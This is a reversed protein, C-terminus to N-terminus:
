FMVLQWTANFTSFDSGRRTTAGTSYALKISQQGAIPISLTAGLRANRQLDPNLVGDVRTEGGAFWTANVALWSRRPLSYSAHGQLAVVADQRKVARAPFYSHNTSFLWVGASADLTWRSITHSLGIEPKVAWRNYGLNVLQRASYQGWPPVVTVAAGVATRRRAPAFQALTLAPAGVLGVSLKFRPDVFGALDQRQAQAHVHGAVSGWAIPAVALVRAQRGGLGFTRGAGVTAIWLDAQVNDIDLAPDFLVGGASRGFGGLVFTTGVPSPSFARPELEQAEAHGITLLLGLLWTVLCRCRHHTV